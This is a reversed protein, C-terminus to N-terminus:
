PGIVSYKKLSNSANSYLTGIYPTKAIKICHPVHLKIMDVHDASEMFYAIM